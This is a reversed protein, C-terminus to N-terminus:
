HKWLKNKKIEKLGSILTVVELMKSLLPKGSNLYKPQFFWVLYLVIKPVNKFINYM